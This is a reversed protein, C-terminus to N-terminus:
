RIGGPEPAQGSGPALLSQLELANRTAASTATNDFVVIRTRPGADELWHALQRLDDSSYASYYRRPTGHLRVYM